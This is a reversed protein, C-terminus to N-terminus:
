KAPARWNLLVHIPEAPASELETVILFRGDRSVDYQQANPFYVAHTRFLAQPTGTEFTSGNATVSAAMLTSDPALFYLEKGDRRWRVSSGGAASVPQAPGPGPFPRVYVEFRGSENSQYAVWKGDPSFVAGEESFPTSLFPFPKRDGFLPLVMLDGLHEQAWYIIFRGDPSWSCPFKLIDSQLLPTEPGVGDAPKRYLDFQAGRKSAYIIDRGDPSWITIRDDGPDTTFRSSRSGEQIWIDSFDIRGRTLAVRRGDPSIEPNFLVPDPTGFAGLERGNRDFWMLQRRASPGTRWAIAGSASVSFAGAMNDPNVAVDSALTVPEGSLEARGPDFRRATLVNRRVRVLWANNWSEAASDTDPSIASIRRPATGDLSAMWIAADAGDTAFLFEKRGPLFRPARYIMQKSTLLPRPVIKDGQFTVATFEGHEADLFVDNAGWTAQTVLPAVAGMVLQPNGGALPVRELGLGVLFGLSNGDPSWFPNRADETGPIAQATTSDFARVWLRSVGDVTAVYAIKRGDPSLAFSTPSVTPPTAIDLRLEPQSASGGRLVLGALVLAAVACVGATIWPLRSTRTAQTQKAEEKQSAIRELVARVDGVSRWRDEPEKALCLGLAWDLDAPAVGAVAPAPRELIAAIVSAASAGNFARKGTLMEYLVCGFSFIDSRADANRGQLQEPAMYQLTGVIAGQQTLAQTLTEDAPRTDASEMRALGFDLVKVGSKTLLINAPKLDRHTIGKRHAAELAGALQIAYKLAIEVPMPGKLPSGEIYEMVLYDPGVDYLACVHPHNFAAIARAEREFRETFQAASIKIAVIRDLRTDRAKYVEGMGGAGLPSLIEYPGLRTGAALSM